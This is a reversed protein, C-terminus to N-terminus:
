PKAQLAADISKFLDPTCSGLGEAEMAVCGTEHLAIPYLVKSTADEMWAYAGALVDKLGEVQGRMAEVQARLEELETMAQALYDGLELEAIRAQLREIVEDARSM